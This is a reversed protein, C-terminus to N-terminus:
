VLQTHSYEVIAGEIDFTVETKLIYVDPLTKGQVLAAAVAEDVQTDPSSNYTFDKKKFDWYVVTLLAHTCVEYYTVTKM